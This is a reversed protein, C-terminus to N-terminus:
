EVPQRWQRLITCRSLLLQQIQCKGDAGDFHVHFVRKGQVIVDGGISRRGRRSGVESLQARALMKLLRLPIEVLQYDFCEDAWIARVMLMRDHRALHAVAYKALVAASWEGTETTCLKTISIKDRRTAKGTESKLSLRVKGVLLDHWPSNPTTPVVKEAPWGSLRFAQEVLAEFFIGQPPLRPYISHHREVLSRVNALFDEAFLEVAV